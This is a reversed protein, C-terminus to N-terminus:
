RFISSLFGLLGGDERRHQSRHAARSPFVELNSRSFNRTDRDKHHVEEGPRLKRGLMKAAVHRHVLVGSKFRPYYRKKAM